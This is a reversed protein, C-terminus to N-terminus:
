IRTRICIKTLRERGMGYVSAEGPYYKATDLPIHPLVLQSVVKRVCVCEYVAM